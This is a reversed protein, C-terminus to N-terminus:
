FLVAGGSDGGTDGSSSFLLSTVTAAHGSLRGIPRQSQVDWLIITQDEAGAAVVTGDGSFAISSINKRHGTLTRKVLRHSRLDYLVLDHYQGIALLSDDPSFAFAAGEIPQGVVQHSAVDWVVVQGPHGGYADTNAALLTGRSSFAVHVFHEKAYTFAEGM